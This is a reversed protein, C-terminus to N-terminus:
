ATSNRLQTDIIWIMRDLLKEMRYVHTETKSAIRFLNVVDEQKLQSSLVQRLLYNQLSFATLPNKLEHGAIGMLEDLIHDRSKETMAVFSRGAESM